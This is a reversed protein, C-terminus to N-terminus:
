TLWVAYGLALSIAALVLCAVLLAQVRARLIDVAEVLRANQGAMADVVESLDKLEKRLEASQAELAEVRGSMSTPGGGRDQWRERMGAWVKHANRAIVPTAAILDVWPVVKFLAIWGPM